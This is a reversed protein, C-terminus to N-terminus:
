STTKNIGLILSSRIRNSAGPWHLTPNKNTQNEDESCVVEPGYSRLVMIIVTHQHGQSSALMQECIYILTWTQTEQCKTDSLTLLKCM